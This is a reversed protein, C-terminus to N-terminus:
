NLWTAGTGRKNEDYSYDIRSRPAVPHYVVRSWDKVEDRYPVSVEHQKAWVSDVSNQNACDDELLVSITYGENRTFGPRTEWLGSFFCAQQEAVEAELPNSESLDAFANSLDRQSLPKALSILREIWSQAQVFDNASYPLFNETGCVPVIIAKEPNKPNEPTASRNLRGMRQILAPVPAIDTVLLDASLDLSMEAVQTSVLICPQNPIRFRDIVTRHRESRDIYRFRSHYVDVYCNDQFRSLCKWYISNAWEVRNRVWLVKGGESVTQDVQSFVHELDPEVELKYRPLNEFEPPGNIVVLDPRVRSIAQKRDKPLSATMLLVPLKPFNKLFILLHGFLRDDFAHIEDFVIAANMIAPLAYISRRANSMLGLVTDCTSVVLPTSWLALSEIKDAQARLCTAGQRSTANEDPSDEQEATERMNQLDIFARSHVLDVDVGSELAYDKFHETTTGTTPLCFFFRFNTRGSEEAVKAWRQAWLYAALSKGSGCGAEALTLYSDSEGVEFQFDKFKFNSQLEPSYECGTMKVIRRNVLAILDGSSLGTCLLSEEVFQKISYNSAHNRNKAVASAAVDAAIGFSKVLGVFRVSDDNRIGEAHQSFEDKLENLSKNAIVRAGSGSKSVEIDDCFFPPESLHLDKRMDELIERFDPHSVQIRLNLADKPRTSNDFKRHHGVAGWIAAWLLKEPIFSLWNRLEPIQRVIIASITEHRLLQIMGPQELMMQFHSNSKGLDQIWGNTRLALSLEEITFTSIDANSLAIRGCVETLTRCAEAVDRSHQTLLAFAPM